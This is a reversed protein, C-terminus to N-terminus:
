NQGDGFTPVMACSAEPSTGFRTTVKSGASPVSWAAAIDCYVGSYYNGNEMIGKYGM